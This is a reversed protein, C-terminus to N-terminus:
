TPNTRQKQICNIPFPRALFPRLMSSPPTPSPPATLRLLVEGGDPEAAAMPVAVVGPGLPVEVEVPIPVEAAGPRLPVEVEAPMPVQAVGPPSAVELEAAPL